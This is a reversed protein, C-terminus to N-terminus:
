TNKNTTSMPMGSTTNRNNLRMRRDDRYAERTEHCSFPAAARCRLYREATVRERRSYGCQTWMRVKDLECRYM